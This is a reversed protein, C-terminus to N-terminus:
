KFNSFTLILEDIGIKIDDINSEYGIAIRIWIGKNPSIDNNKIYDYMTDDGFKPFNCLKTYKSGYSTEFKFKTNSAMIRRIDFKNDINTKIHFVICGTNLKLFNRNITYTPHSELMPYMVKLKKEELYKATNIALHSVITMRENITKLGDIFIQCHDAGVFQGYIINWKYVKKMIYKKGIMMGGICISGSIYKTMSEIVVDVAKVVKFPNFLFASTWTNDICYVCNPAYKRLEDYRDFDIMQGSPNTCTEIFFIKIEKKFKEFNNKIEDFNRIDVRIVTINQYKKSIYNVVKPTDAYLESGIIVVKNTTDNESKTGNEYQLVTEFLASIATMGSPFVLAEMKDTQEYYKLLETELENRISNTTRCYNSGYVDDKEIVLSNIEKIEKQEM